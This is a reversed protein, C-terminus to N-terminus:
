EVVVIQKQTKGNSLTINLIYNGKPLNLNNIQFEDSNFFDSLVLRGFLDYVKVEKKDEKQSLMKSLNDCPDDPPPLIKGVLNDGKKVPNTISIKFGDCPDTVSRVNVYIYKISNGCINTAKCVVITSGPNGVKATIGTTGQGSNIQWGNINTGLVGGADFYWYYSVAGTAQPVSYYKNEGTLPNSEGSMGSPFNPSGINFTKSKTATQGCANTIIANLTVTGNSLGTVTVTAGSTASLSAVAPNSVSWTVTNTGLNSITYSSSSGPCFNGNGTIESTSPNFAARTVTCSLSPKAVGNIYPTVFVTSPLSTGSNPTLNVSSMTSTAVGNWGSFSWQYTVTAGAPINAPTVTFTRPSTSGCALSVTTPSLTFTPVPTKTITFNCSTYETSSSSKFVVFLTGGSVNFDSSNISFSATTSYTDNGSSPHNWFSESIQVWSRQVRYDSSSKQTYVYLDSLGVVQGNPKSLNIGFNISTSTSSLLDINGCNTAGITPQGNNTYQLSQIQVTLQQSYSATVTFLLIITKILNKM